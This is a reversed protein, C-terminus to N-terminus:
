AVAEPPIERAPEAGRELGAFGFEIAAAVATRLGQVYETDSRDEPEPVAERVGAFIAQEIERQRARLRRVVMAVGTGMAVYNRTNTQQRPSLRKGFPREPM